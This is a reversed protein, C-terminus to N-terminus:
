PSWGEQWAIEGLLENAQEFTLDSRWLNRQELAQRQKPTPLGLVFSAEGKTAGPLPRWGRNQLAALQEETAPKRHWGTSPEFDRVAELWVEEADWWGRTEESWPLWPGSPAEYFLGKRRKAQKDNKKM